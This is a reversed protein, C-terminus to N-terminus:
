AYYCAVEALMLAGQMADKDRTFPKFLYGYSEEFGM